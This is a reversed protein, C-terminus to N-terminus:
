YDPKSKDVKLFNPIFFIVLFQWFKFEAITINALDGDQHEVADSQRELHTQRENKEKKKYELRALM